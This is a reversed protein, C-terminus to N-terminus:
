RSALQTGKGLWQAVQDGGGTRIFCAGGRAHYQNCLRRADAKAFGGVSLRYFTAGNQNLSM